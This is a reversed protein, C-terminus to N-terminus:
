DPVTMDSFDSVIEVFPVAFDHADAGAGFVEVDSFRVDDVGEGAGLRAPSASPRHQNVVVPTVQLTHHRADNGRDGIEGRSRVGIVQVEGALEQELAGAVSELANGVHRLLGM